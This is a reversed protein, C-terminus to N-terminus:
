RNERVHWVRLIVDADRQVEYRIEYDGVLLRRIEEAGDHDLVQGLQPFDALGRSATALRELM